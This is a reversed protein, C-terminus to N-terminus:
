NLLYKTELIAGEIDLKWFDSDIKERFHNIDKTTPEITWSLVLMILLQNKRDTITM